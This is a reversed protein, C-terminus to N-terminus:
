DVEWKYEGVQAHEYLLRRWSCSGFMEKWVIGGVGWLIRLQPEAQFTASTLQCGTTWTPFFPFFPAYERALVRGEVTNSVEEEKEEDLELRRNNEAVIVKLPVHLSVVKPIARALSIRPSPFIHWYWTKWEFPSAHENSGHKKAGKLMENEDELQAVRRKLSKEVESSSHSPSGTMTILSCSSTHIQIM